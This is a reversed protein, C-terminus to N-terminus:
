TTSRTTWTPPGSTRYWDTRRGSALSVAGRPRSSAAAERTWGSRSISKARPWRREVGVRRGARHTTPIALTGPAGSRAPRVPAAWESSTRISSAWSSRARMWCVSSWWRMWKPFLVRGAVSPFRLDDTHRGGHDLGQSRSTERGACRKHQRPGHVQPHLHQEPGRGRGAPLGPDRDGYKVEFRPQPLDDLRDFDHLLEDMALSYEHAEEPSLDLHSAVALRRVEEAAPRRIGRGMRIRHM